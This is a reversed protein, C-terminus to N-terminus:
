LTEWALFPPADVSKRRREYGVLMWNTRTNLLGCGTCSLVPVLVRATVELARTTLLSCLQNALSETMNQTHSSEAPWGVGGGKFTVTIPVALSVKKM